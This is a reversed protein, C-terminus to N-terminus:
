YECEVSHHRRNGQDNRPKKRKYNIAKIFYSVVTPWSSVSAMKKLHQLDWLPSTYMIHKFLQMKRKHNLSAMQKLDDQEFRKKDLQTAIWDRLRMEGFQMPLINQSVSNGHIRILTYAEPDHLYHISFDALACQFWFKWDETHAIETDFGGIKQFVNSRVLPSSIVSINNQILTHVAAAGKGILKPMWTKGKMEIDPFWIDPDGDLFYHNDVYCIDVNPHKEFFDLQKTLKSKSLLDDADLFQVFDGTAYQLGLNRAASVGKNEQRFYLLRRDAKLYPLLIKETNDTSGDDVIIAEWNQHIQEQLNLITEGLFKGYNFSPIIISVKRNMVDPNLCHKPKLDGFIASLM